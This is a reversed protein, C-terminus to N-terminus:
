SSSAVENEPEERSVSPARTTPIVSGRSLFLKQAMIIVQNSLIGSVNSIFLRTTAILHATTFQYINPCNVTTATAVVTLQGLM